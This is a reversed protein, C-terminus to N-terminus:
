FYRGKVDQCRPYYYNKSRKSGFEMKGKRHLSLNDQLRGNHNVVPTSNYSRNTDTGPHQRHVDSSLGRADSALGRPRNSDLLPTRAKNPSPDRSGGLDSNSTRSRVMDERQQINRRSEPGVSMPRRLEQQPNDRQFQPDRQHSHTDRRSHVDHQRYTHSDRHAAHSERTPDRHSTHSDRAPDRHAAHSDRTPDRHTTHSDRTPDRHAAHSDRTPDRHAAHSDRVPHTSDRLPRPSDRPHPDKTRRADHGTLDSTSVRTVDSHSGRHRGSRLDVKSIDVVSSGRQSNVQISPVNHKIIGDSSHARHSDRQRRGDGATPTKM